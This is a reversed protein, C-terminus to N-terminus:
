CISEAEELDRLYEEIWEWVMKAVKESTDLVFAHRIDKDRSLKIDGDYSHVGLTLNFTDFEPVQFPELFRRM